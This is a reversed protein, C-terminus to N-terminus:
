DFEFLTLLKRIIIFLLFEFVIALFVLLFLGMPTEFRNEKKEKKEFIGYPCGFRLV